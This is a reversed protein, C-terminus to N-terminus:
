KSAYIINGNPLLLVIRSTFIRLSDYCFDASKCKGFPIISLNILSNTKKGTLRNIFHLGHNRDHVVIMNWLVRVCVPSIELDCMDLVITDDIAPYMIISTTTTQTFKDNRWWLSQIKYDTNQVKSSWLFKSKSEEDDALESLNKQTRMLYGADCNTIVGDDKGFILHNSTSALRVCSINKANSDVYISQSKHLDFLVLGRHKSVVVLYNTNMHCSIVNGMAYSRSFYTKWNDEVDIIRIEVATIICVWKYHICGGLYGTFQVAYKKWPCVYKRKDRVAIAPTEYRVLDIRISYLNYIAAKGATTQTVTFAHTWTCGLPFCRIFRDPFYITQVNLKSPTYMMLHQYEELKTKFMVIDTINHIDDGCNDLQHILQLEIEETTM